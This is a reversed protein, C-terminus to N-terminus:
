PRWSSGLWCGGWGLVSAVGRRIKGGWPAGPVPAPISVQPFATLPKTKGVTRVIHPRYPVAGGGVAPGVLAAGARHLCVPWPTPDVSVPPRSGHVCAYGGGGVARRPAAADVEGGGLAHGLVEPTDRDAAQRGELHALVVTFRLAHRGSIVCAESPHNMSSSRTPSVSRGFSTPGFALSRAMRLRASRPRVSSSIRQAIPRHVNTDDATPSLRQSTGAPSGVRPCSRSPGRM